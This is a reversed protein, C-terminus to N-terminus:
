ANSQKCDFEAADHNLLVNPLFVALLMLSAAVECGALLPSPLLPKANQFRLSATGPVILAVGEDDSAGADSSTGGAVCCM